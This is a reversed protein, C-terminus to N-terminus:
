FIHSLVVCIINDDGQTSVEKIEVVNGPNKMGRKKSMMIELAGLSALQKVGTIFIGSLTLKSNQTKIKFHM